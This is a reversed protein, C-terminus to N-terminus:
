HSRRIVAPRIQFITKPLWTAIRQENNINHRVWDKPEGSSSLLQVVCDVGTHDSKSAAMLATGGYQSLVTIAILISASLQFTYM